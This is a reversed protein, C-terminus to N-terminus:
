ASSTSNTRRAAGRSRAPAAGHAREFSTSWDEETGLLLGILHRMAVGEPPVARPAGRTGAALDALRPRRAVCPLRDRIGARRAGARGGRQQRLEGRRARLHDDDTGAARRTRTSCPESCRASSATSARSARSGCRRRTAAGASTAGRSSSCAASRGPSSGTPTSSRSPASARESARGAIGAVRSRTWRRSSRAHSRRRPRTRRSGTTRCSSRSATPRCARARRGAPAPDAPATRAARVRARRAGRSAAVGRGRRRDRAAPHDSGRRCETGCSTRVVRVYRKPM